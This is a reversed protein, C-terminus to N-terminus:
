VVGAKNDRGWQIAILFDDESCPSVLAATSHYVKFWPDNEPDGAYQLYAEYIKQKHPDSIGKAKWFQHARQHASQDIVQPIPLGELISRAGAVRLVQDVLIRFYKVDWDLNEVPEEWLRSNSYACVNALVALDAVTSAQQHEIERVTEYLASNAAEDIKDANAFETQVHAQKDLAWYEDWDNDELAVEHPQSILAEYLLQNGKNFTEEYIPRNSAYAAWQFQLQEGLTALTGSNSNGRLAFAATAPVLAVIPAAALARLIGRRTQAFNVSSAPLATASGIATSNQSDAQAM